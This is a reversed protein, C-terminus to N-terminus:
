PHVDLIYLNTSGEEIIGEIIIAKAILQFGLKIYLANAAIRDPRSTLSLRVCQGLHMAYKKSHWLLEDMLGKGIGKGKYADEVVVEHIEALPRVLNDKYLISAMGVVDYPALNDSEFALVTHFSPNAIAREYQRLDLHPSQKTQSLFTLLRGIERDFTRTKSEDSRWKYSIM